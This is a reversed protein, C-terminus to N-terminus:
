NIEFETLIKRIDAIKGNRDWSFTRSNRDLYEFLYLSKELLLYKDPLYRKTMGDQYLLEALMQVRGQTDRENRGEATLDDLIMEKETEYFWSPPRHFYQRYVEDFRKQIRSTDPDEVNVRILKAIANFFEQLIRMIFDREIM